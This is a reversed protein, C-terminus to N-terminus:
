SAALCFRGCGPLARRAPRLQGSIATARPRSASGVVQGSIEAASAVRRRTVSPRCILWAHDLDQVDVATRVVIAQFRADAGQHVPETVVSGDRYPADGGVGM